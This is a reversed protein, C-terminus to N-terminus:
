FREQAKLSCTGIANQSVKSDFGCSPESFVSQLVIRNEIRLGSLTLERAPKTKELKKLFSNQRKQYILRILNENEQLNPPTQAEFGLKFTLSYFFDKSINIGM